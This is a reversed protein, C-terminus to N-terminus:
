HLCATPIQWNRGRRRSRRRQVARAGRLASPETTTLKQQKSTAQLYQATSYQWLQRHPRARSHIKDAVRPLSLVLKLLWTCHSVATESLIDALAGHLLLKRLSRFDRRSAAWSLPTRASADGDNIQSLSTELEDDPTKTTLGLVAKHLSSVYLASPPEGKDLDKLLALLSALSKSMGSLIKEWTITVPSRDSDTRILISPNQPALMKSISEWHTDAHRHVLFRAFDLHENSMAFQTEDALGRPLTSM